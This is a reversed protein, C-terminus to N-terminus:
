EELWQWKAPHTEVSLAPQLSESIKLFERKLTLLRFQHIKIQKQQQKNTKDQTTM